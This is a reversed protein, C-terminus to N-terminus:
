QVEKWTKRIFDLDGKIRKLVEKKSITPKEGHEAGGLDYEVHISMPVNIQYQKLMTFYKRFDVMGEGIPTFVPAWKGDKKGWIFDKVVLTNIFPRILKFGIEWNKGGEVIAHMIDYQSGIYKPSQLEFVQYLDWIAAGFFHGSHNHYTASINNKKNLQELEKLKNKAYDLSEFITQEKGYRFWDSRYYQYGLRSATEVINKHIPNNADSVHTSLMQPKLEFSKMVETAKPLDEKVREPLVHGNPRVTIDIGDFGMEKAAESMNKYDLFQLHKSFIHVSLDNNGSNNNFGLNAAVTNSGLLAATGAITTQKIFKRRSQM